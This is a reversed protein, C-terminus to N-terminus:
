TQQNQGLSYEKLKSLLGEVKDADIFAKIIRKIEFTEPTNELPRLFGEDIVKRIQVEIKEVQKAEDNSDPLFPIMLQIIQQKTLIARSSTGAADNQLLYKRLQLCLLTLLFSLQRKEILRPVEAEPEFEIQKLFAYGEAKDIYLELGVSSFYKKVDVEYRSLNEWTEKNTDYIVGKLLAILSKSYPTTM